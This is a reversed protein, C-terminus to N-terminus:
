NMVYILGCKQHYSLLFGIRIEPPIIFLVARIVPAELPM